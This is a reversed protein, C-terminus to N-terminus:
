TFTLVACLIAVLTWVAADGATGSWYEERRWWAIGACFWLLIATTVTATLM